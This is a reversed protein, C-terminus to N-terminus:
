LAHGTDLLAQLVDIRVTHKAAVDTTKGEAKLVFLRYLYTVSTIRVGQEVCLLGNQFDFVKFIRIGNAM